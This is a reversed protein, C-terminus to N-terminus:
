WWARLAYREGHFFGAGNKSLNLLRATTPSYEGRGQDSIRRLGRSAPPREWDELPAGVRFSAIGPFSDGTPVVFQTLGPEDRHPLYGINM